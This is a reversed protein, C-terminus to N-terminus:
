EFEVKFGRKEAYRIVQSKRLNTPKNLFVRQKGNRDTSVVLLKTTESMEMFKGDIVGKDAHYNGNKNNLKFIIRNGYKNAVQELKDTNDKVTPKVEQVEQSLESSPISAHNFYKKSELKEIQKSLEDQKNQIRSDHAIKYTEKLATAMNRFTNFM